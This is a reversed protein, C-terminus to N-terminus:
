TKGNTCRKARKNAIAKQINRRVSEIKLCGCSRTGGRERRLQIGAIFKMEGCSCACLWYLWGKDFKVSIPLVSLRGYVNGAEEIRVDYM